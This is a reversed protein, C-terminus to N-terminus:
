HRAMNVVTFSILNCVREMRKRKEDLKLHRMNQRIRGEVFELEDAVGRILGRRSVVLREVMRM